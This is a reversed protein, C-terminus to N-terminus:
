RRSNRGRPVMRDTAPLMSQCGSRSWTSRSNPSQFAACLGAQLETGLGALTGVEGLLRRLRLDADGVGAHRDAMGIIVGRMPATLTSLPPM